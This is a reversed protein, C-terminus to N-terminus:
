AGRRSSGKAGSAFGNPVALLGANRLGSARYIGNRTQLIQRPMVGTTRTMKGLFVCILLSCFSFAM